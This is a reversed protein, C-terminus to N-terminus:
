PVPQARFVFPWSVECTGGKPAAFRFRSLRGLICTEVAEDGLTTAAVAAGEVRGDPGITWRVTVKGALTPKVVLSREYCWRLQGARRKVMARIADRDCIATTEPEGFALKASVRGGPTARTVAESEVALSLGGARLVEGMAFRHFATGEFGAQRARHDMAAALFVEPSAKPQSYSYASATTRIAACDISRCGGMEDLVPGLEQLVVELRKDASVTVTGFLAADVIPGYIHLVSLNALLAEMRRSDDVQGLSERLRGLEGALDGCRPPYAIGFQTGLRVIGPVFVRTTGGGTAIDLGVTTYADIARCRGLGPLARGGRYSARRAGSSLPKEACAPLSEALLERGRELDSTFYDVHDDGPCADVYGRPTWMLKEIAGESGLALAAVTADLLGELTSPRSAPPDPWTRGGDAPGGWVVITVVLLAAPIRARM